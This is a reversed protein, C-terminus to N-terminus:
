LPIVSLATAISTNIAGTVQVVSQAVRYNGATTITTGFDPGGFVTAKNTTFVNPGASQLTVPGQPTPLTTTTSTSKLIVDFVDSSISSQQASAGVAFMAAFLSIQFYRSLMGGSPEQQIFVSM